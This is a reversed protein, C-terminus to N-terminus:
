HVLQFWSGVWSPKGVPHMGDVRIGSSKSSKWHKKSFTNRFIQLTQRSKQFVSSKRDNWQNKFPKVIERLACRYRECYTSSKLKVSDIELRFTEVVSMPTILLLLNGCEHHV